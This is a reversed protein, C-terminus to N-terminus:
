NVEFGYLKATNHWLIKRKDDEAVNEFALRIKEGSHPWFIASHPLDSSWLM